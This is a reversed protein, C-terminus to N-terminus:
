ARKREQRQTEELILRRIVVAECCDWVASLADLRALDEDSLRVGKIHNRHKGDAAIPTRPQRNVLHRFGTVESSSM